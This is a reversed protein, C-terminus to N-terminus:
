YRRMPYKMARLLERLPKANGTVLYADTTGAVASVNGYEEHLKRQEDVILLRDYVRNEEDAVRWARRDSGPRLTRPFQEDCAPCGYAYFDYYGHDGIVILEVDLQQALRNLDDCRKRLKPVTTIKFTGNEKLEGGIYDRTNQVKLVVLLVPHLLIFIQWKATRIPFFSVALALLVPIGLYMRSLSFFASPGGDHVKSLGLTAIIMFPILLFSLAAAKNNKRYLLWAFLLFLPLVLFGNKWFIPAVPNFFKDMGSLGHLLFQSEYTLVYSHVVYHPHLLYFGAIALHIGAGAVIGTGCFIYFSRNRFNHVFLYLLCPLSIIAANANVSYGLVCFLGAFFLAKRSDPYFVAALCASSVAIGTVFGRPLSTMMDYEFPLLLPILLILLGAAQSRKRFTLVALLVFPLLTLLTTIVPLALYLPVGCWYLPIALLSELMTNYDQGYFRPEHFIGAAYDTTGLWMIAQDSDIFRFAFVDLVYFRYAVVCALLLVFLLATKSIPYFRLRKM